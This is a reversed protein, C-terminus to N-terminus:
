PAAPKSTRAPGFITGGNELARNLFFTGQHIANLTAGPAILTRGTGGLSAGVRWNMVNSITLLGTGNLTPSGSTILV